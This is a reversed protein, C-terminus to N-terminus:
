SISATTLRQQSDVSILFIARHVNPFPSVSYVLWEKMLGKHLACVACGFMATRVVIITTIPKVMLFLCDLCKATGLGLSRRTAKEQTWKWSNKESPRPGQRNEKWRGCKVLYM